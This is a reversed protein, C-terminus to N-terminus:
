QYQICYLWHFITPSWSGVFLEMSNFSLELTSGFNSWRYSDKCHKCNATVYILIRLYFICAIVCVQLYMGNSAQIHVMSPNAPNRIFNFTEWNAPSPATAEVNTGGGQVASVFLNNFVRLQYVGASVRWIQEVLLDVGCTSQIRASAWTYTGKKTWGWSKERFIAVLVHKLVLVFM